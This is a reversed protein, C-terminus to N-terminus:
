KKKRKLLKAYYIAGYQLDLQTPLKFKLFLEWQELMTTKRNAELSINHIPM